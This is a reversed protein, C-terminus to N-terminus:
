VNKIQQKVEGISKILMPLTSMYPKRTAVYAVADGFSYNHMCCLYAIVVSPSRGVGANCFVLIKHNTIHDQIWFVAEKLQGVPIPQMDIIPVKHYLLNTGHIEKEKAVCLLASISSAPDLAEHFNGIALYDLIFDM